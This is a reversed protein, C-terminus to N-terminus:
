SRRVTDSSSVDTATSNARSIRLRRAALYEEVPRERGLVPDFNEFKDALEDQQDLIEQITRPMDPPSENSCSCLSSSAM